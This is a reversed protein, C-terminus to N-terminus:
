KSALALLLPTIERSALRVRAHPNEYFSHFLTLLSSLSFNCLLFSSCHTWFFCVFLFLCLQTVPPCSCSFITVYPASLVNYFFLRIRIPLFLHLNRLLPAPRDSNSCASRFSLHCHLPFHPGWPFNTRAWYPCPYYWIWLSKDIM